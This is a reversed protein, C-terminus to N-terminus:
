TVPSGSRRVFPVAVLAVVYVVSPVLFLWALLGDRDALRRKAPGGTTTPTVREAATVQGM